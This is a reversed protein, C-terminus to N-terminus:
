FALAAGLRNAAARDASPADHAYTRLLLAPNHGLRGAATKADVGSSLLLIAASHRPGHFSVDFGHDAAFTSFLGGLTQPATAAGDRKAVIPTADSQRLGLLFLREAQDFKLRRLPRM